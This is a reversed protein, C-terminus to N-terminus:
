QPAGTSDPGSIVGSHTHNQLSISGAVVDGTANIMGNVLVNSNIITRNSSPTIVIDGNQLLKISSGTKNKVIVEGLKNLLVQSTNLDYICVEGPELNLPRHAKDLWGMLIGHDSEGALFVAIGELVSLPPVASYGYTELVEVHDHLEDALSEIQTQQSPTDAKHGTRMVRRVM